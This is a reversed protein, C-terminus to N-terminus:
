KKLSKVLLKLDKKLPGSASMAVKKLQRRAEEDDGEGFAQLADIGASTSELTAIIPGLKPHAKANEIGQRAISGLVPVNYIKNLFAKVPENGKDLPKSVDRSVKRATKVISKLVKPAVRKVARFAKSVSSRIKDFIGM